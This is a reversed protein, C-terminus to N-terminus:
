RSSAEALQMHQQLQAKFDTKDLSPQYTAYLSSLAAKHHQIQQETQILGVLQERLKGLQLLV